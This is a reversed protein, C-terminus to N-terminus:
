NKIFKRVYTNDETEIIVFYIGKKLSTIDVRKLNKDYKLNEQQKGYIDIIKVKVIDNFDTLYIYDSSPNPYVIGDDTKLIEVYESSCYKWDAIEQVQYTKGTSSLIGIKAFKDERLDIFQDFSFNNL